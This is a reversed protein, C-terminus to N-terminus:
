DQEIKLKGKGPILVIDGNRLKRGRRNDQEGNIYIPHESLFAKAMGGTSVVDVMQLFQGLTVYESNIKVTDAM